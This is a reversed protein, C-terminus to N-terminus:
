KSDSKPYPNKTNKSRKEKLIHIYLHCAFIKPHSVEHNERYFMEEPNKNGLSGHSIINHVYVITRTAEAWLYLPLDQDHVMCKVAEM